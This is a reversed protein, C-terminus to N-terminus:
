SVVGMETLKQGVLEDIKRKERKIKNAKIKAKNESYYKRHYKRRSKTKM